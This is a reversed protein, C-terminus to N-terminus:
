KKITMYNSHTFGRMDLWKLLYPGAPISKICLRLEKKLRESTGAVVQGKINILQAQSVASGNVSEVIIEQGIQKISIALARPANSKSDNYTVSVPNSVVQLKMGTAPAIIASLFDGAFKTSDSVSIVTAPGLTSSASGLQVMSPRPIVLVPSKSTDQPISADRYFQIGLNTLRTYHRAMAIAFSNWNKLARPTWNLEATACNRPYAFYDLTKQDAIGETWICHEAGLIFGAKDQSLTPPLPEFAYMKSLPISSQNNNWSYMDSIPSMIAYCGNNAATIGSNVDIWSQVRAGPPIGGNMIENWGVIDRHLSIKVFAQIKKIFWSQLQDASALHEAAMRAKCKPCVNWRTKSVEDGGIHIFPSPFLTAVETLVNQLFTFVSDNGACFVDLYTGGSIPITFPGGTCSLQPFRSLAALCHGPMEIEPVILVGRQQAYAVIEKADEQTYYSGTTLSPYKMIQLRWGQDETLHWHLRNLKYYALMDINRKITEKPFFHRGCDIMLGRWSFRATDVITVEPISWSVGSVKQSKEIDAPLLQRLTQVGYFIGVSTKAKVSVSDNKVVLEYGENGLNPRQSDITLSISKLVGAHAVFFLGVALLVASAIRPPRMQNNRM